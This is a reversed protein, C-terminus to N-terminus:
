CKENQCNLVFLPDKKFEQRCHAQMINIHKRFYATLERVFKSCSERDGLSNIEIYLNKYGNDQLIELATKILIAETISKPSGIIELSIKRHKGPNKEKGENIFGNYTIMVPQPMIALNSNFYHRLLASKEEATNEIKDNSGITLLPEGDKLTKSNTHDEKEIEPIEIPQFGYYIAAETDKDINKLDLFKSEKKKGKIINKKNSKQAM